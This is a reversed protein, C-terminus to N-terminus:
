PAGVVLRGGSPGVPWWGTVVLQAWPAFPDPDAGSMAAAVAGTLLWLRAGSCIHADVDTDDAPDFRETALLVGLHLAAELQGERGAALVAQRGAARQRDVAALWAPDVRAAAAVAGERDVIALPLDVVGAPTARALAAVDAAELGAIQPSAAQSGVNLADFLAEVRDGGPGLAAALGLRRDDDGDVVAVPWSAVPAAALAAAPSPQGPPRPSRGTALDLGGADVTHWSM